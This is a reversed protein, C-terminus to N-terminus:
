VGLQLTETALHDTMRMNYERFYLREVVKRFVERYAAESSADTLSATRQAKETFGYFNLWVEREVERFTKQTIIRCWPHKKLMDFCSGCLKRLTESGDHEHSARIFAPRCLAWLENALQTPDYARMRELLAAYRESQQAARVVKSVLARECARDDLMAFFAGLCNLGVDIRSTQQGSLLAAAEIQEILDTRTRLLGFVETPFEITTM